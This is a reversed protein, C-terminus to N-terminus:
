TGSPPPPAAPLVRTDEDAERTGLAEGLLSREKSQRHCNRGAARYTSAASKGARLCRCRAGKAVAALGAPLGSSQPSSTQAAVHGRGLRQEEDSYSGGATVEGM